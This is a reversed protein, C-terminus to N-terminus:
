GWMRMAEAKTTEAFALEAATVKRPAQEPEETRVPAPGKPALAQDMKQAASGEGAGVMAAAVAVHLEERLGDNRLRLDMEAYHWLDKLCLGM